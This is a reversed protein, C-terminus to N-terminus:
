RATGRRGAAPCSCRCGPPRSRRAGPRAAASRWRRAAARPSRAPTRCSRRARARQDGVQQVGEVGADVLQGPRDVGDLVLGLRDGHPDGAALVGEEAHGQDLGRQRGPRGGVGEAVPGQAREGGQVLRHGLDGAEGAVADVPRAPAGSWRPRRGPRCRGSAARGCRASGRSSPVLCRAASSRSTVTTAPRWRRDCRSEPEPPSPRAPSPCSAAARANGRAAQGPLRGLPDQAPVPVTVAARASATVSVSGFKSSSRSPSSGM